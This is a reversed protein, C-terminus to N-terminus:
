INSGIQTREKYIIGSGHSKSTKAQKPLPKTITIRETENKPYDPVLVNESASEFIIGEYKDM